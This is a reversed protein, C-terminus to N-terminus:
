SPSSPGSLAAPLSHQGSLQSPTRFLVLFGADTTPWTPAASARHGPSGFMRPFQKHFDRAPHHPASNPEAPPLSSATDLEARSHHPRLPLSPQLHHPASGPEASPHLPRLTLNLGAPARLLERSCGPRAPQPAKGPPRAQPLPDRAGCLRARLARTGPESPAPTAPPAPAAVAGEPRLSRRERWRGELQGGARGGM